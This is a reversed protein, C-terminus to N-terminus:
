HYVKPHREAGINGGVHVGGPPKVIKVIELMKVLEVTKVCKWLKWLKVFKMRYPVMKRPRGVAGGAPPWSRSLFEWIAVM